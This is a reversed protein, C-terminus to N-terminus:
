RNVIDFRELTGMLATITQGDESLPVALIEIKHLNGDALPIAQPGHRTPAAATVCTRCVTLMGRALASDAVRSLLKGTDNRGLLSVIGDGILRFRFDAGETEIQLVWLWQSLKRVKGLTIDGRKPAKRNKLAQRWISYLTQAKDGSAETAPKEETASITHMVPVIEMGKDPLSQRPAEITYFDM